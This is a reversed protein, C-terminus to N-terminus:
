STEAAFSGTRLFQLTHRAADNRFPLEGHHAPTSVRDAEGPLFTLTEHVLLDKEAVIVGFEIDVQPPLQNVYSTPASSLERLPPFWRGFWRSLRAAAFSGRNPPAMMVLRGRKRDDLRNQLAARSIICGLSHGVLHWRSCGPDAELEDLIGDLREVHEEIRRRWTAYGPVVPRLGQEHFYNSLGRMVWAGGGLGHLLVVAEQGAGVSDVAAAGAELVPSESNM